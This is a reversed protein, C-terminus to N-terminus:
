VAGHSECYGGGYKHWAWPTGFRVGPVTRKCPRGATTVGLCTPRGGADRWASWVAFPVGTVEAVVEAPNTRFRDYQAPSISMTLHADGQDGLNLVIEVEPPWPMEM